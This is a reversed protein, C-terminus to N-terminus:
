RFGYRAYAAGVEFRHVRNFPYAVFAELQTQFQRILYTNEVLEDGQGLNQVNFETFGYRFPIHSASFGWNWRNQQNIYALQGGFDYIEGNINLAGLIQNYGLIDSFTGFVGGAMGAGYRNGVAMGMGTNTLYDLKFQPRYPIENIQSSNIRRYTNFNRLNN